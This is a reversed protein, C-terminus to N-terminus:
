RVRHTVGSLIGRIDEFPPLLKLGGQQIQYPRIDKAHRSGRMKLITLARSIASDIEVYRLLFVSDVVFPLAPMRGDKPKTINADEDLLLTTIGERKLANIVTNYVNRLRIPDETLRRFQSASDIVARTPLLGRITESLPSDPTQLSNLFVEPSTFILRLLNEQQLKQLDWGLSQADRILSAPFEEFTVMLGAEGAQIGTHLFQLGLTTKGVGAAGSILTVSGAIVGGGLMADLTPEGTSLRKRERIIAM